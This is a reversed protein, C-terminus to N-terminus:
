SEEWMSAGEKRWVMGDIYGSSACSEYISCSPAALKYILVTLPGYVRGRLSAQVAKTTPATLPSNPVKM